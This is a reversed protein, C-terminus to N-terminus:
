PRIPTSSAPPHPQPTKWHNPSWSSTLSLSVSFHSPLLLYNKALHLTFPPPTSLTSSSCLTAYISLNLHRIQSPFCNQCFSQQIKSSREPPLFSASKIMKTFTVSLLETLQSSPQTTSVKRQVLLKASYSTKIKSSCM